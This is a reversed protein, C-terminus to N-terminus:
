LSDRMQKLVAASQKVWDNEKPDWKYKKLIMHLVMAYAKEAQDNNYFVDKWKPNLSEDKQLGIGGTYWNFANPLGVFSVRDAGGRKYGELYYQYFRVFDRCRERIQDDSEPQKAKITWAFNQKSFPNTNIDPWWTNTASYFLDSTQDKLKRELLLTDKNLVKIIYNGKDGNEYQTSINVGDRTFTARYTEGGPNELLEGNNMFVIGPLIDKGDQKDIIDRGMPHDADSLTWYQYLLSATDKRDAATMMDADKKKNSTTCQILFILLLLPLKRM